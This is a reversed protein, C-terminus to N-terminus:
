FSIAENLLANSSIFQVISLGMVKNDESGLFDGKEIISIPPIMMPSPSTKM